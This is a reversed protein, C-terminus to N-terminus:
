RGRLLVRWGLRQAPQGMSACPSPSPSGTTPAPSPAPGARCRVRTPLPIDTYGWAQPACFTGRDDAISSALHGHDYTRQRFPNCTLLPSRGSLYLPDDSFFGIAGAALWPAADVRRNVVWVMVDLGAARAPSVLSPPLTASLGLYRIGSVAPDYLSTATLMM